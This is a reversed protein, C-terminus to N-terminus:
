KKKRSNKKSRNKLHIILYIVFIVLVATVFQKFNFFSLEFEFGGCPITATPKYCRTGELYPANTSPDNYTITTQGNVCPTQQKDYNCGNSPNTGGCGNQGAPYQSIRFACIGNGNNGSSDWVCEVYECQSLEGSFSRQPIRPDRNGNCSQLSTFDRCYQPGNNVRCTYPGQGNQQTCVQNSPCCEDGTNPSGDGGLCVNPQANAGSTFAINNGNDPDVFWAGNNLCRGLTFDRQFTYSFQEVNGQSGTAPTYWAADLNSEITGGRPISVNVSMHKDNFANSFTNYVATGVENGLGDHLLISEDIWGNEWFTWNFYLEAFGPPPTGIGITIKQTQQVIPDNCYQFAPYLETMQPCNGALCYGICTGPSVPNIVTYVLVVYSDEASFPVQTPFYPTPPNTISPPINEVIGQHGPENIFAFLGPSSVVLIGVQDEDTKGTATETCKLTVTVQGDDGPSFSYTFTPQNHTFLQNGNRELVWEYTTPSSGQCTGQFNIAYSLSGPFGADAFYIGKHVPATIQATPPRSPPTCEDIDITYDVEFDGINLNPDQHLTPNQSPSLTGPARAIFYFDDPDQELLDKGKNYENQLINWDAYVENDIITGQITKIYDNPLIGDDEFIDLYITEAPSNPINITGAWTKVWEGVCVPINPPPSTQLRLNSFYEKWEANTIAQTGGGAQTTSCCIKYNNNTTYQNANGTEIHANTAGSLSIVEAEGSGCGLNGSVSRCSLDGYCVDKTYILPNPSPNDPTEAHANTLDNLKLVVNSTTCTRSPTQGSHLSEYTGPFLHNYCIEVPYNGLGNYVEGHANTNTTSSLRMILNTPNNNCASIQGFVGYSNVLVVGLFLVIFISLRKM